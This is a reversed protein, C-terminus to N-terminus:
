FFEAGQKTNIFFIRYLTKIVLHGDLQNLVGRILSFKRSLLSARYNIATKIEPLPLPYFEKQECGGNELPRTEGTATHIM